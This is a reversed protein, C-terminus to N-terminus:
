SQFLISNEFYVFLLGRTKSWRVLRGLTVTVIWSCVNSSLPTYRYWHGRFRSATSVFSHITCSCCVFWTIFRSEKQRDRKSTEEVKLQRSTMILQIIEDCVDQLEWDWWSSHVLAFYSLPATGSFHKGVALYCYRNLVSVVLPYLM